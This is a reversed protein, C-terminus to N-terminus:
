WNVCQVSQELAWIERRARRISERAKDANQGAAELLVIAQQNLTVSRKLEQKRTMKAEWEDTFKLDDLAEKQMNAWYEKPRRTEYPDNM